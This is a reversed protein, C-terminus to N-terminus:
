SVTNALGRGWARARTAEGELLPGPTDVVYFSEPKVVLDHGRKRLAKGAGRAASGPLHRVKDVRTDFVAFRVDQAAVLSQLFERIGLEEDTGGQRVADTRTGPRTMGFAHTPGGIVVLDVDDPIAEPADRVDVVDAGGLGEAIADAVQRTNGFMSEVVVMARM